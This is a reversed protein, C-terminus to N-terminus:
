DGRGQSKKSHVSTRHKKYTSLLDSVPMSLNTAIGQSISNRFPMSFSKVEKAVFVTNERPTFPNILPIEKIKASKLTESIPSVPINDTIPM